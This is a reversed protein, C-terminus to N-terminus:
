KEHGLVYIFLMEVYILAMTHWRMASFLENAEM